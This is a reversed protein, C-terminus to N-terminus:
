SPASVVVGPYAGEVARGDRRIATGGVWVHEIGTSRSILRDGDAPFDWLREFPTESVTDPDFAVLDAVKGAEITGRDTIGWLAAPQAAM